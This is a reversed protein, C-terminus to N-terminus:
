ITVLSEVQIDFRPNKREVIRCNHLGIAQCVYNHVTELIFKFKALARAFQWRFLLTSFVSNRCVQLFFLWLAIAHDFIIDPKTQHHDANTLM